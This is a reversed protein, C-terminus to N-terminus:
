CGSPPASKVWTPPGVRRTAPQATGAFRQEPAGGVEPLLVLPEDFAAWVARVPSGFGALSIHRDGSRRPRQQENQGAAPSQGVLGVVDMDVSIEIQDSVPEVVGGVHGALWPGIFGRADRTLLWSHITSTPVARCPFITGQESFAHQDPLLFRTVRRSM